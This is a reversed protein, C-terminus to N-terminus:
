LGYHPHGFHQKTAQVVSSAQFSPLRDLEYYPSYHDVTVLYACEILAFLDKFRTALTSYASPLAQTNRQHQQATRVLLATIASTRLKATLGPGSCLTLLTKSPLDAGRHATHLM